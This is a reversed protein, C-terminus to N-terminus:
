VAVGYVVTLDICLHNGSDPPCHDVGVVCGGGLPHMSRGLLGASCTLWLWLGRAPLGLPGL